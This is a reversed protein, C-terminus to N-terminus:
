RGSAVGFIGKEYQIIAIIVSAATEAKLIQKGLSASIFGADRALSIEDRSFGGEPGVVIFFNKADASIPDTLVDRITKNEEEEWFILALSNDGRRAVVSELTTIEGVQTIQPSRSLRAAEQAIKQWRAAKGTNKEEGARSVSRTAVFPLVEVAGLEAANRIITDMKHAKLLSQALTIKIKQLAPEKAEKLEVEVNNKSFSRIVAEFEQGFGDFLAIRSGPHLRLVFKLHKYNDYGM